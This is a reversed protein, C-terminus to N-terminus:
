GYTKYYNVNLFFHFEDDLVKCINCLRNNYPVPPPKWRGKEVHM